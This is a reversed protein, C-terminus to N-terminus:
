VKCKPKGPIRLLEEPDRGQEVLIQKIARELEDSDFRGQAKGKMSMWQRKKQFVRDSLTLYADICSDVDMELRGLM